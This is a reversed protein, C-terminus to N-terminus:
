QQKTKNRKDQLRKRKEECPGCPKKEQGKIILDGNTILDEYYQRTKEAGFVFGMMWPGTSPGGPDRSIVPDAILLMTEDSLLPKREEQDSM